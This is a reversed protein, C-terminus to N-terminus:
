ILVVRKAASHDRRSLPRMLPGWRGIGRQGTRESVVLLTGAAMLPLRADSICLPLLMLAWCTTICWTALTIGFFLPDTLAALGFISLRPRLHCRALCLMRTPSIQWAVCALVAALGAVLASGALAHLFFAAVVMLAYAAMWTSLYGVIFFAMSRWRHRSLSRYWLHLFPGALSPAMMAVVMLAIEGALVPWGIARVSLDLLYVGKGIASDRSGGCLIPMAFHFPEGAVIIVWASLSASWLLIGFPGFGRAQLWQRLM